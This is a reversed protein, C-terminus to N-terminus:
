FCYSKLREEFFEVCTMNVKVITCLCSIPETVGINSKISKIPLFTQWGRAFLNDLAGCEQMDGMKTGLCSNRNLEHHMKVFFKYNLFM